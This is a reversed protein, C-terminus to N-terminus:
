VVMGGGRCNSFDYDRGKGLGMKQRCGQRPRHLSCLQETKCHVETHMALLGTSLGVGLHHTIGDVLCKFIHSVKVHVVLTKSGHQHTTLKGISHTTHTYIYICHTPTYIYAIHPHIYIHELVLPPNILIFEFFFPDKIYWM